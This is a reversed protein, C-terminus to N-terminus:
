RRVAVNRTDKGRTEREGRPRFAPPQNDCQVRTHHLWMATAPPACTPHLAGAAILAFSQPLHGAIWGEGAKERLMKCPCSRLGAQNAWLNDENGPEVRQGMPVM